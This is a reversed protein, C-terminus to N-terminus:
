PNRLRKRWHRKLSYMPPSTETRRLVAVLERRKLLAIANQVATKSLGTASAIRSLSAEVGHTMEREVRVALYLYVIFASPKKDHGVLDRMLVDVVYSDIEVGPPTKM